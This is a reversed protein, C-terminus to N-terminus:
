GQEVDCAVAGREALESPVLDVIKEIGSGEVVVVEEVVFPAAFPQGEVLELDGCGQGGFGGTLIAGFVFGVVGVRGGRAAGPPAAAARAMDGLLRAFAACGFGSQRPPDCAEEGDTGCGAEPCPGLAEAVLEVDVFALNLFEIFGDGGEAPLIGDQEFHGRGSGETADDGGFGLRASEGEQAADIDAEEADIVDPLGDEGCGVKWQGDALFFERGKDGFDLPAERRGGGHGERVGRPAEVKFHGLVSLVGEDRGREALAGAVGLAHEPDDAEFGLAFWGGDDGEALGIGDGECIGGELDRGCAASGPWLVNEKRFFRADPFLNRANM